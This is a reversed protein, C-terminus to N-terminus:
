RVKVLFASGNRYVPHNLEATDCISGRVERNFVSGEAFMFVTKQRQAGTWGSRNLLQYSFVTELEAPNEPLVLSLTLYRNGSPEEVFPFEEIFEPHFRGYGSSREGGIGCEGLHAMVAKLKPWQEPECEVGFYLGADKERHFVIEGIHYLNSDRTIRDLAVKPRLNYTLRDNLLELKVQLRPYDVPDGCIWASFTDQDVFSTQQVLKRYEHRTETDEFGPPDLLPKPWYYDLEVYPFASSLRLPLEGELGFLDLWAICLASYLTDSHLLSGAEEMGLGIEGLHLPSQLRMKVAYRAM